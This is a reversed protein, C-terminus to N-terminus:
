NQSTDPYGEHLATENGTATIDGHMRAPTGTREREEVWAHASCSTSGSGTAKSCLAKSRGAEPRGSANRQLTCAGRGLFKSFDICFYNHLKQVGELGYRYGPVGRAVQQKNGYFVM